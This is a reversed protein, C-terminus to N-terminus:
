SENRRKGITTIVTGAFFFSSGFSWSPQESANGLPSIGQEKVAIVHELFRELDDDNICPHQALFEDRVQRVQKFLRREYPSEIATFIAAGVALYFIYVAVLIIFRINGRHM